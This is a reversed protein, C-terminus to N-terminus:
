GLHRCEGGFQETFPNSLLLAPVGRYAAETQNPLEHQRVQSIISFNSSSEM